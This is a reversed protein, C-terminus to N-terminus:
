SYSDGSEPTRTRYPPSGTPMPSVLNYSDVTNSDIV